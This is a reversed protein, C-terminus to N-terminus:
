SGTSRYHRVGFRWALAALLAAALSVLPSTWAVWGPLGLPDPRGLLMLAPYYAVFAFGLSYAFVRRFVGSYVNIPYSSFDRGGYTFGNAFEGSDIWFFAFTASAVFVAGFFVAGCIPATVVLLV